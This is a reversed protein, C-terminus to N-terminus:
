RRFEPRQGHLFTTTILTLLIAAHMRTERVPRTLRLGLEKCRASMERLVQDVAYRHHGTVTAVRDRLERRHERLFQVATQRRRHEPDPSFLRQLHRDFAAPQRPPYSHKKDEYYERLTSKISRIPDVTRRSRAAMSKRNLGAVLEGVFDLKTLATPWEAYRNRWRTGPRLWVAFTEAFDEAPHSQAYWFDLNQVFARSLPDPRYAPDYRTGFKGFTERWSKKHHLRYANDIAHGTEHRLLRICTASDGGETEFMQQREIRALRRHALFFPIAFGPVGDPTFWDTSLWAHPRFRIGHHALEAHLRAIRPALPSDEVRLGLDCLRVDLLEDYPLKLWWAQKSRPAVRGLIGIPAAAGSSM